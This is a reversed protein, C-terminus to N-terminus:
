GETEKLLLKIFNEVKHLYFDGNHLNDIYYKPIFSYGYKAGLIACAIAANTDADGGENVITILGKEFDPAHFYCWLAVALSRLTYGISYTEDLQLASIDEASYALDIWEKIRDDYLNGIEIIENVSLEKKKWILNHIISTMIVCSGVCRSDYHTLLCVKETIDVYDNQLLGIVSTRM